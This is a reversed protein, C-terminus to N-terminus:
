NPWEFREKRWRRLDEEAAEVSARVYREVLDLACARCVLAGRIEEAAVDRAAAAREAPTAPGSQEIRSRGDEEAAAALM